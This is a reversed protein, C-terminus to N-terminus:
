ENYFIELRIFKLLLWVEIRYILSGTKRWKLAIWSFVQLSRWSPVPFPQLKKQSTLRSRWDRKSTNKRSLIMKSKKKVSRHPAVNRVGTRTCLFHWIEMYKRPFAAGVRQGPFIYWTKPFFIRDKRIICSLDDASAVRKPFVIKESLKFFIDYKRTNKQSLDDKM